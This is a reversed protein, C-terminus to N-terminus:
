ATPPPATWRTAGSAARSPASRTTSPSRTAPRARSATPAVVTVEGLTSAARVLCDLGHALIGDDNTCLLHM